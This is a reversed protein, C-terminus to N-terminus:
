SDTLTPSHELSRLVDAVWADRDLTYAFAMRVKADTFARKVSPVHRCLHLSGPYSVMEKSLDANAKVVELDEAALGVIDFEHTRKYAEFAVATDSIYSYEISYKATGQWFHPNPSFRSKVSPDLTEYIFPGNGIHNAADRGGPKAVPLLDARRQSSLHGM